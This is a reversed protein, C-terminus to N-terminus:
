IETDILIIVVNHLGPRWILPTIKTGLTLFQITIVRQSFLPLTALQTQFQRPPQPHARENRRGTHVVFMDSHLEFIKVASPSLSKKLHM